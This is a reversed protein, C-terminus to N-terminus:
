HIKGTEEEPLSFLDFFLIRVLDRCPMSWLPVVELALRRTIRFPCLFLLLVNLYQGSFNDINFHMGRRGLYVNFFIESHNLYDLIVAKLLKNPQERM